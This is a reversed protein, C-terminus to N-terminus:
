MIKDTFNQPDERRNLFLRKGSFVTRLVFNDSLSACSLISWKIIIFQLALVSLVGYLLNQFCNEM